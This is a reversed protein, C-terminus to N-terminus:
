DPDQAPLCNLTASTLGSIKCDGRLSGACLFFSTTSLYVIRICVAVAVMGVASTQSDKYAMVTADSGHTILQNIKRLERVDLLWLAALKAPRGYSSFRDKAYKHDQEGFTSPRLFSAAM